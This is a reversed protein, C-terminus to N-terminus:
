PIGEGSSVLPHVMDENTTASPAMHTVRSPNGIAVQQVREMIVPPFHNTLTHIMEKVFVTM